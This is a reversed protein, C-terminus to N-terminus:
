AVDKIYIWNDDVCQWEVALSSRLQACISFRLPQRSVKTATRNEQALARAFRSAAGLSCFVNIAKAIPIKLLCPSNPLEPLDVLVIQGV